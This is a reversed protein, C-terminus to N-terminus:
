PKGSIFVALAAIDDPTLTEAVPSMIVNARKGTRFATLQDVIYERGLGAIRPFLEPKESFGRPGHCEGCGKETYLREGAGHDSSSVVSPMGHDYPIGDASLDAGPTYGPLLCLICAALLITHSQNLRASFM